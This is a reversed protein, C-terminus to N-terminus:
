SSVIYTDICIVQAVILSIGIILKAISILQEGKMLEYFVINFHKCVYLTLKGKITPLRYNPIPRYRPTPRSSPTPVQSVHSVDGHLM